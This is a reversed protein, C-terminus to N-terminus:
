RCEYPTEQCAATERGSLLAAHERLEREQQQRAALVYELPALGTGPERHQKRMRRRLPGSGGSRRNDAPPSPMEELFRACGACYCEQSGQRRLWLGGCQECYKLELGVFSEVQSTM